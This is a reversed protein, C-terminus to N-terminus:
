FDKLEVDSVTNQAMSSDSQNKLEFMSKNAQPDSAYKPRKVATTRTKISDFDQDDDFEDVSKDDNNIESSFHDREIEELKDFYDSHNVCSNLLVQNAEIMILVQLTMRAFAFILFYGLFHGLVQNFLATVM